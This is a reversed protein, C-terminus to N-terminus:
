RCILCREVAVRTQAWGWRKPREEPKRRFNSSFKFFRYEDDRTSSKARCPISVLRSLSFLIVGAPTRPSLFDPMDARAREAESEEAEGRQTEADRWNDLRGVASSVVPHGKNSSSDERTTECEEKMGDGCRVGGPGTDEGRDPGSGTETEWFGELLRRRNCEAAANRSKGRELGGSVTQWGVEASYARKRARREREGSGNTSQNRDQRNAGV